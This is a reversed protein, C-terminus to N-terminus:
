GTLTHIKLFSNIDNIFIYYRYNCNCLVYSEDLSVHYCLLRGGATSANWLLLLELRPQKVEWGVGQQQSLLVTCSAELNQARTAQTPVQLLEKSGAKYQGLVPWELYKHLSDPRPLKEKERERFVQVELWVYSDWLSIINMLQLSFDLYLYLYQHLYLSLYLDPYPIINVDYLISLSTDAHHVRKNM